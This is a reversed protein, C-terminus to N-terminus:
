TTTHDLPSSPSISTAITARSPLSFAPQTCCERARNVYPSVGMITLFGGSNPATASLIMFPLGTRHYVLILKDQHHHFRHVYTEEIVEDYDVWIDRYTHVASYNQELRVCIRLRSVMAQNIGVDLVTGIKGKHVDAERSLSSPKELQDFWRKKSQVTSPLVLVCLGQWPVRGTHMRKAMEEPSLGFSSPRTPPSIIRSLNHHVM